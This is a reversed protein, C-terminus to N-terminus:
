HCAKEQQNIANNIPIITHQQHLLEIHFAYNIKLADRVKKIEHYLIEKSNNNEVNQQLTAMMKESQHEFKKMLETKHAIYAEFTLGGKELLIANEHAVLTLLSEATDLFRLLNEETTTNENRNM